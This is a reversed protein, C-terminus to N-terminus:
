KLSVIRRIGASALEALREQLENPEEALRTKDRVFMVPPWPRLLTDELWSLDAHRGVDIPYFVGVFGLREAVRMVDAQQQAARSWTNSRAYIVCRRM